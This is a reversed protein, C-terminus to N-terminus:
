TMAELVGHRLYDNKQFPHGSEVNVKKLNVPNDFIIQFEDGEKPHKGWFYSDQQHSYANQPIYKDYTQLSTYAHAPPNTSEPHTKPIPMKAKKDGAFYRDQFKYKKIIETDAPISPSNGPTFM